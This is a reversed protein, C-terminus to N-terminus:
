ADDVALRADEILSRLDDDSLSELNHYAFGLSPHARRLDALQQLLALRDLRELDTCVQDPRPTARPSASADARRLEALRDNAFASLRRSAARSESTTRGDEVAVLAVEHIIQELAVLSKNTRTM